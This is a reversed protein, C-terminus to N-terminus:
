YMLEWNLSSKASKKLFLSSGHQPKPVLLDRSLHIQPEQHQNDPFASLNSPQFLYYCPKQSCAQQLHLFFPGFHM